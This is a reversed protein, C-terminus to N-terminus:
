TEPYSGSCQGRCKGQTDLLAPHFLLSIICMHFHAAPTGGHVDSCLNYVCKGGALETWSALSAVTKPNCRVFAYVCGLPRGKHVLPLLLLTGMPIARGELDLDHPM